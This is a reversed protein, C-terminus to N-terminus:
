QFQIWIISRVKLQKELKLKEEQTLERPVEPVIEEEIEDESQSLDTECSNNSDNEFFDRLLGQRNEDDENKYDLSLSDLAHNENDYEEDDDYNDSETQDTESLIQYNIEPEETPLITEFKKSIEILTSQIKIPIDAIESLKRQM